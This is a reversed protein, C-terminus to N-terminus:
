VFMLVIGIPGVAVGKGEPHDNNPPGTSPGTPPADDSCGGACACKSTLHYVKHLFIM